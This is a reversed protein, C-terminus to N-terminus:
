NKLFEVKEIELPKSVFGQILPSHEAKSFDSPDLSSTLIHIQVSNLNPITMKSLEEIFEWGDMVPMNIDLFIFNPLTANESIAKLALEAQSFVLISADPFYEELFFQHLMNTIDDDDILWINM